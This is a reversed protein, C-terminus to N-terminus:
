KTKTTMADKPSEIKLKVDSHTENFEKEIKDFFSVAEQKYQVITITPVGDTKQKSGCGTILGALMFVCTFLAISKKINKKM